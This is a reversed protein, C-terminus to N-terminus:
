CRRALRTASDSAFSSRLCIFVRTEDVFYSLLLKCSTAIVTFGLWFFPVRLHRIMHCCARFILDLRLHTQFLLNLLWISSSVPDEKINSNPLFDPRSAVKGVQQMCRLHSLGRLYIRSRRWARLPIRRVRSSGVM